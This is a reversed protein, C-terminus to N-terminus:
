SRRTGDFTAGPDRHLQIALKNLYARELGSIRAALSKNGVTHSLLAELYVRLFSKLLHDKQEAYPLDLKVFRRLWEELAPERAADPESLTGLVAYTEILNKLERVNGPWTRADLEQELEPPLPEAGFKGAFHRALLTRDAGRDRLPPVTLRIVMLRYYLDERFLGATVQAGLNQHSAAIVRVNAPRAVNEGIRTVERNELARLLLPQVEAPLDAIEDLFLTGGSATEFAGPRTELAGTFAGRKHGFLESRVLPPDLAACNIAVFPGSAVASQRHIARAV